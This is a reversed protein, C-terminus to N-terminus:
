CCYRLGKAVGMAMETRALLVVERIVALFQGEDDRNFTPSWCPM